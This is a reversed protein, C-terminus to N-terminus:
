DHVVYLSDSFRTQWLVSHGNGVAWRSFLPRGRGIELPKSALPELFFPSTVPHEGTPRTLAYSLNAVFHDMLSAKKEQAARLIRENTATIKAIHSGKSNKKISSCWFSRRRDQLKFIRELLLRSPPAKVGVAKLSAQSHKSRYFADAFLQEVIQKQGSAEGAAHLSKAVSSLLARWAVRHREKGDEASFNEFMLMKLLSATAYVVTLNRDADRLCLLSKSKKDLEKIRHYHDGKAPLRDDEHGGGEIDFDHWGPYCSSFWEKFNDEGLRRFGKSASEYVLFHGAHGDRGHGAIIHNATFLVPQLWDFPQIAMLALPAGNPPNDPQWALYRKLLPEYWKERHTDYGKPSAVYAPLMAYADKIISVISREKDTGSGLHEDLAQLAPALIREYNRLNPRGVEVRFLVKRASTFQVKRPFKFWSHFADLARVFQVEAASLSYLSGLDTDSQGLDVSRISLSKLELMSTLVERSDLASLLDKELVLDALYESILKDPVALTRLLAVQNRIPIQFLKYMAFRYDVKGDYPFGNYRATLDRKKVANLCVALYSDLM